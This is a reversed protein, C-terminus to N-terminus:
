KYTQESGEEEAITCASNNPVKDIDGAFYLIDTCEIPRENHQLEQFLPEVLVVFFLWYCERAAKYEYQYADLTNSVEIFYKKNTM